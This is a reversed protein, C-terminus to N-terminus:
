DEESFTVKPYNKGDRETTAVMVVENLEKKSIEIEKNLITSHEVDKDDSLRKGKFNVLFYSKDGSEITQTGSVKMEYTEDINPFSNNGAASLKKALSM